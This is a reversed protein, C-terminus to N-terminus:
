EGGRKRHFTVNKSAHFFISKIVKIDIHKRALFIFDQTSDFLEVSLIVLTQKM